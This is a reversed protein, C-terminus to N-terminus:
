WQDEEEFAHLRGRYIDITRGHARGLWIGFYEYSRDTDEDYTNVWGWNLVWRYARRPHGIKFLGLKM